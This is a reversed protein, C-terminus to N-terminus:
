RSGHHSESNDSGGPAATRPASAGHKRMRASWRLYRELERAPPVVDERGYATHLRWAVYDAPPLPLFPAHRYWGRARFRWGAAVLPALLGPHRLALGALRRLISGYNM